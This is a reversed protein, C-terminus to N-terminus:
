RDVPARTASKQQRRGAKRSAAQPRSERSSLRFGYDSDPERRYAAEEFLMGRWHDCDREGVAAAALEVLGNRDGVDRRRDARAQGLGRKRALDIPFQDVGTEADVVVHRQFDDGVLM